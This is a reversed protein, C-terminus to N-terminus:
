LHTAFSIEDASVGADRMYAPGNNVTFYLDRFKVSQKCGSETNRAYRSDKSMGDRSM